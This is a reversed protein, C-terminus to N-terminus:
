SELLEHRLVNKVWVVNETHWLLYIFLIGHRLVMRDLLVEFFKLGFSLETRQQVLKLTDVHVAGVRVALMGRARVSAVGM